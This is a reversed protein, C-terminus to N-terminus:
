DRWRQLVPPASSTLAIDNQAHVTVGQKYPHFITTHGSDALAKVSMLAKPVMTPVVHAEKVAKPLNCIALKIKDTAQLINRSAM